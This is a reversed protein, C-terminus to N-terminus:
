ASSETGGNEEVPELRCIDTDCPCAGDVEFAYVIRLALEKKGPSVPEFGFTDFRALLEKKGPLATLGVALCRGTEGDLVHADEGNTVVVVPIQYPLAARALAIASKWRTVLSGPAYKILVCVRDKVSVLFDIKLIAKRNDAQVEIDVGKQIEDRFFGCPGLLREALSQRYREDHTDPITKGTVIDEIQGLILHHGSQKIEM